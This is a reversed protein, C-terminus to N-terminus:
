NKGKGLPAKEGAPERKKGVSYDTFLPLKPPRVSWGILCAVEAALLRAGAVGM